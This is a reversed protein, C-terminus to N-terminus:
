AQQAHEHEPLRGRLDREARDVDRDRAFAGRHICGRRDAARLAPQASVAPADVDDAAPSELVAFPTAVVRGPRTIPYGPIGGRLASSARSRPTLPLPAIEARRPRPNTLTAAPFRSEYLRAQEAEHHSLCRLLSREVPTQVPSITSVQEPVHHVSEPCSEAASPLTTLCTWSQLACPPGTSTWIANTPSNGCSWQSVSSPKAWVTPTARGISEAVTRCGVYGISPRTSPSLRISATSAPAPATTSHRYTWPWPTTRANATTSAAGAISLRNPRTFTRSTADRCCRPRSAATSASM